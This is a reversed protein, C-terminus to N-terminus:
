LLLIMYRILALKQKTSKRAKPNYRKDILGRSILVTSSSSGQGADKLREYCFFKLRRHFSEWIFVIRLQKSQAATRLASETFRGCYKPVSVLSMTQFRIAGPTSVSNVRTM